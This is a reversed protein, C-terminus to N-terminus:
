LSFCVNFFGKFFSFFFTSQLKYNPRPKTGARSGARPNGAAGVEQVEVNLRLATEDHKEEEKQLKKM